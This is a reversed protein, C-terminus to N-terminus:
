AAAARKEELKQITGTMLFEYIKDASAKGIGPVKTKGKGLGKANDKNIKFDIGKIAESVKRYSVGANTNKEKFYLESLEM